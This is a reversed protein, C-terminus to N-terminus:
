ATKTRFRRVLGAAVLVAAGILGYTSPEPVASPGDPSATGSVEIEAISFYGSWGPGFNSLIIRDTAITALPGSITFLDNALGSVSVPGFAEGAFSYGAGGFSVSMTDITGPISNMAFDGGFISITEVFYFDDLHLTIVPAPSTIFLQAEQASSAHSGDNLTGSGGTYTAPDGSITGTYTHMWGGFGSLKANTIDYSVILQASAVVGSVSLALAALLYKLKM